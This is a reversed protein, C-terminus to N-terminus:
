LIMLEEEAEKKIVDFSEEGLNTSLAGGNFKPSSGTIIGAKTSYHRM